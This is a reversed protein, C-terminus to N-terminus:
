TSESIGRLRYIRKVPVVGRVNRHAANRRYAATQAQNGKREHLIEREGHTRHCLGYQM